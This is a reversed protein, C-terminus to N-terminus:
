RKGRRTAMLFELTTSLQWAGRVRGSGPSRCCGRALGSAAALGAAAAPGRPAGRAADSGGGAAVVILFALSAMPWLPLHWDLVPPTRMQEWGPMMEGANLRSFISLMSALEPDSRRLERDIRRLRRRGHPVRKQADSM